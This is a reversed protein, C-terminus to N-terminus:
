PYLETLLKHIAVRMRKWDEEPQAVRLSTRNSLYLQTINGSRRVWVIQEPNIWVDSDNKYEKVLGFGVLNIVARFRGPKHGAALVM